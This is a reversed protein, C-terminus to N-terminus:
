LHRRLTQSELCRAIMFRFHAALHNVNVMANAAILNKLRIIFHAAARIRYVTAMRNDFHRFGCVLEYVACKVARVRLRCFFALAGLTKM